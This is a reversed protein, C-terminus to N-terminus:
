VILYMKIGSSCFQRKNEEIFIKLENFRDASFYVVNIWTRRKTIIPEASLPTHLSM